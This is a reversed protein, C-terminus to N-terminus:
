RVVTSIERNKSIALFLKSPKVFCLYGRCKINGLVDGIKELYSYVKLTGDIYIVKNFIRCENLHRRM